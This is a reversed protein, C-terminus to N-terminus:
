YPDHKSGRERSPLSVTSPHRWLVASTEIWAGAFPAVRPIVVRLCFSLRKSGRERSPLSGHQLTAPAIFDMNRDVSGRLSRRSSTDMGLSRMLTEIWAGAFPAVRSRTTQKTPPYTEIWAGAFPAVRVARHDSRSLLKSGRERSPLSWLMGDVVPDVRRKSGRERSPLSETRNDSRRLIDNRDV